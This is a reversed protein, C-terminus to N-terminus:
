NKSPKGKDLFEIIRDAIYESESKLEVFPADPCVLYYNRAARLYGEYGKRSEDIVGTLKKTLDM